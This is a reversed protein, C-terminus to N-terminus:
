KNRFPIEIFKWSFYALLFPLLVLLILNFQSFEHISEYRSFALIPQHWLYASYSILGISVLFPTGLLKGVWTQPTAFLIILATGVTPALTYFSPFPTKHDFYFIAFIILCLGLMSGLQFKPISGEFKKGTLLYFATMSGILLEWARTPLLFFASSPKSISMLQAVGFSLLTLVFVLGFIWRTGLRWALLIFAPFFLYYQEEVSLSWTHLLPKLEAAVDFYGSQNSFFHNSIFLVVAALSGSFKKLDQPLLWLWAFPLCVVLVFFLVPLIRRARREYFNVLSFTGELKESYIISTILYGSIVFFIDVGVYGGSFTNFGAHFFVVPIVALARLGDIERRYLM